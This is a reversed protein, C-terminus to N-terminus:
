ERQRAHHHELDCGGRPGAVAGLPARVADDLVVPWRCMENYEDTRVYPVAAGFMLLLLGALRGGELGRITDCTLAPCASIMAASPRSLPCIALM